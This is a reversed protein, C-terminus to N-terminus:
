LACLWIPLRRAFSGVLAPQCDIAEELTQKQFTQFTLSKKHELYDEVAAGEV